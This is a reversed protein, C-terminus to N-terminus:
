APATPWKPDDVTLDLLKLDRVYAQWAKASKTEAPTAEGLQLSVLLPTMAQSASALLSEKMSTNRALTEAATPKPPVPASFSGDVLVWGSEPVPSVGTIDVMQAVMEETFREEIPWESEDDKLLPLIIEQVVGESVRAYVAMM